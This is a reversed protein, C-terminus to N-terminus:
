RTLLEGLLELTRAVPDNMFLGAHLIRDNVQELFENETDVEALLFKASPFGLGLQEAMNWGWDGQEEFFLIVFILQEKGSLKVGHENKSFSPEPLRNFTFVPIGFKDFISKALPGAIESNNTILFVAM